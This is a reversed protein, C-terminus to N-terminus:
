LWGRRSLAAVLLLLAPLMWFGSDQWHEIHIDSHAAVREDVPETAAQLQSILGPLAPLDAYTGGGAVALQRLRDTELRAVMPQGQADHKTTGGPPTGSATGVGIVDVTIGQSKLRLAAASAAASDASGDTLVIVREDRSATKKLLQGAQDLAPALNDGPTPMIDPALPPLLARLNGVDETLPAVVYPEDSFAILGVSADRAAGLLDDIAYRARTVRNPSVDTAAMSPSLDLVVVWAAAARYGTSMDHRWSPGALSVAALTWALALWLWPSSAAGLNDDELRLEQLLEPDIIKSWNGDALRRRAQVFAMAWLPILALLWFPRLFHFARLALNLDHLNM